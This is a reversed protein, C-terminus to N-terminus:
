SVMISIYRHFLCYSPDHTNHCHLVGGVKTTYLRTGYTTGAHHSHMRLVHQPLKFINFKLLTVKQTIWFWSWQVCDCNKTEMKCHCNIFWTFNQIFISIFTVSLKHTFVKQLQSNCSNCHMNQANIKCIKHPCFKHLAM